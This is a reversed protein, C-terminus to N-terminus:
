RKSRPFGDEHEEHLLLAGRMRAGAIPLVALGLFPVVALLTLIADLARRGNWQKRTVRLIEKARNPPVAESVLKIFFQHFEHRRVTERFVHLHAFTAGLAVLQCLYAVKLDDPDREGFWCIVAAIFAIMSTVLVISPIAARIVGVGRSWDYAHERALRLRAGIERSVSPLPREDNKNNTAHASFAGESALIPYVGLTLPTLLAATLALNKRHEDDLAQSTVFRIADASMSDALPTVDATPMPRFRSMGPALLPTGAQCASCRNGESWCGVHHRALCQKCAVWEDDAVSVSEHCFPCRNADKIFSVQTQEM